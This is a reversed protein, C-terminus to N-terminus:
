EEVDEWGEQKDLSVSIFCIKESMSDKMSNTQEFLQHSLLPLYKAWYSVLYYDFTDQQTRFDIPSLLGMIFPFVTSDIPILEDKHGEKFFNSLAWACDSQEAMKLLKKDRDFIQVTPVSSVGVKSLEMLANMSSVGLLKDYYLQNEKAYVKLSSSSEIEPTQYHGLVRLLGLTFFQGPNILVLVFMGILFVGTILLWKKKM